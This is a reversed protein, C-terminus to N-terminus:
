PPSGVWGSDQNPGAVLSCRRSLMATNSSAMAPSRRGSSTLSTAGVNNHVSWMPMTSNKRWSLEGVWCRVLFNISADTSKTTSTLRMAVDASRRGIRRRHHADQAVRSQEALCSASQSLWFAMTVAFSSEDDQERRCSTIPGRSAVRSRSHNPHQNEADTSSRRQDCHWADEPNSGGGHRCRQESVPGRQRPATTSSEPQQRRRRENKRPRHLMRLDVVSSMLSALCAFASDGSRTLAAASMAATAM